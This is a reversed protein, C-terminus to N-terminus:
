QIDVLVEELARELMLSAEEQSTRSGAVIWGIEDLVCWRPPFDCEMGVEAFFLYELVNDTNKPWQLNKLFGKRTTFLDATKMYPYPGSKPLIHQQSLPLGFALEMNALILDYNDQGLPFVFNEGGGMRFNIEILTFSFGREDHRVRFEVHLCATQINQALNLINQTYRVVEKQEETDICLCTQSGNELFWPQQPVFNEVFGSWVIKGQSVVLNLDIDIWEFYPELAVSLLGHKQVKEDLERPTTVVSILSKGVSEVWKLILPFSDPSVHAYDVCPISIVHPCDDQLVDHHTYLWERLTQKNKLHVLIEPWIWPTGLFQAIQATLVVSRDAFTWVGDFTINKQKMFDLISQIRPDSTPNESDILPSFADECYITDDVFERCWERHVDLVVIRGVWIDRLRKMVLYKLAPGANILLITKTKLEERYEASPLTSDWLTTDFYALL